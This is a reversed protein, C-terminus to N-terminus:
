QPRLAPPTSPDVIGMGVLFYSRLKQETAILHPMAKNLGGGATALLMPLKGVGRSIASILRPYGDVPNFVANFFLGAQKTLDFAADSFRPKPETWSWAVKPRRPGVTATFKGLSPRLSSQGAGKLSRILSRAQGGAGISIGAVDLALSQIGKGVNGAAFDQYAGVFPVLSVLLNMDRADAERSKELPLQGKARTLMQAQTEYFNNEAIECAIFEVRDSQYANPVFTALTQDEPLSGALLYRGLRDIIVGSSTVGERPSTGRTYADLDLPVDHGRRIYKDGLLKYQGLHSTDRVVRDLASTVAPADHKIIKGNYLVEYYTVAQDHLVRMLVGQHGTVTARDEDSEWVQQKGTKSRLTFLDVAGLEIRQRDALPLRTFMLKLKTVFAMQQKLHHKGVAKELLGDLAPLRRIADDLAKRETAPALTDTQFQFPNRASPSQNAQLTDATLAWKGPTLDGTMYTEILSRTRPESIKLNRRESPDALMVKVQELQSASYQPFVKLLETVAIDRRTPLPTSATNFARAALARQRTFVQSAKKIDAETYQGSPKAQLVGNLVAWDLLVGLGRLQMLTRQEDTTPALSTLASVQAEDMGRSTGPGATEAIACGLRLEMWAPTGMAVADPVDRVLFEPAAQALGVHAMLVAVNPDLGKNERLHRELDARVESLTRGMHAPQYVDFGAISTPLDDLTAALLNGFAVADPGDLVRALHADANLRLTEPTYFALTALPRYDAAGPEAPVIASYDGAAPAPPLATRLWQIVNRTAGATRPVGLGMHELLQGVDYHTHAGIAQASATSVQTPHRSWDTPSTDDLGQVQQELLTALYAREDLESIVRKVGKVTSALQPALTLDKTLIHAKLAEREQVTEAPKLGYASLVVHIPVRYQGNQLYPLGKNDPDLANRIARLKVSAEWWGSGDTSSFSVPTRVGDRIVFGEGGERTLTLPDTLLGKSAIWAQTQPQNVLRSYIDLLGALSSGAPVDIAARDGSLATALNAALTREGEATTTPDSASEPLTWTPGPIVPPTSPESRRPRVLTPPTHQLPAPAEPTLFVVPRAHPSITLM